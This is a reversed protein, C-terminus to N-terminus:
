MLIHICVSIYTCVEERIWEQQKTALETQKAKLLSAQIRNSEAAKRALTIASQNLADESKKAGDASV